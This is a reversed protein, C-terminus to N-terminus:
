LCIVATRGSATFIPFCFTETGSEVCSDSEPVLPCRDVEDPQGDGDDDADCADGAGDGDTDIQDPNAQLPCNDAGDPQGDGDDDADCTDGSGDGDTDLQDPNALLPCNDSGDPQGDDDDDTDCVDGAGDGDTDLQDPNVLLPCNDLGDSWGDGDDDADCADGEDDGDTDRQDRNSVLPCNDLTDGVGDGDADTVTETAVSGTDPFPSLSRGAQNVSAVWYFFVAGPTGGVIEASTDTTSGLYVRQGFETSSAYVEYHTAGIAPSWTVRVRDPLTGDTAAIDLPIFPLWYPSSAFFSCSADITALSVGGFIFPNETLYGLFEGWKWIEPPFSTFENTASYTGFRSGYTGFENRVSSSSFRSGYTGFQNNISESAFRGGFFGLYTPSFEQSYLSAGEIDACTLARVAPAAALAVLAVAASTLRRLTGKVVWRGLHRVWEVSGGRHGDGQGARRRRASTGRRRCPARQVDRPELAHGDHAAREAPLHRLGRPARNRHRRRDLERPHADQISRAGRPPEPHDGATGGRRAGPRATPPTAADGWARAPPAGRRHPGAAHQDALSRVPVGRDARRRGRERLFRGRQARTRRGRARGPRGLRQARAGNPPLGHRGGRADRGAEPPRREDPPGVLGAPLRPTGSRGGRRARGRDAPRDGGPQLLPRGVGGGGPPRVHVLVALSSRRRARSGPCGDLRLPIPIRLGCADSRDGEGRDAM